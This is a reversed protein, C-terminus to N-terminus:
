INAVNTGFASVKEGTKAVMYFSGAVTADIARIRDPRTSSKDIGDDVILCGNTYVQEGNTGITARFGGQFTVYGQVYVGMLRQTPKMHLGFGEGYKEKIKIDEMCILSKRLYTYDSPYIDTLSLREQISTILETFEKASFKNLPYHFLVERSDVMNKITFDKEYSVDGIILISSGDGSVGGFSEGKTKFVIGSEGLSKGEYDVLPNQTIPNVLPVGDSFKPVPLLFRFTGANSLLETGQSFDIEEETIFRMDSLM